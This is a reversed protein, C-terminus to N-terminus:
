KFVMDQSLNEDLCYFAIKRLAKRLQIEDVCSGALSYKCIGDHLVAEM